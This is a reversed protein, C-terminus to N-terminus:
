GVVSHLNGDYLTSPIINSFRPVPFLPRLVLVPVSSLSRPSSFVPVFSLIFTVSLTLTEAIIEWKGSERKKEMKWKGSEVKWTGTCM